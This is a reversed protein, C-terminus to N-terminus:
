PARQKDKCGAMRYAPSNRVYCQFSDAVGGQSSSGPIGGSARIGDLVAAVTQPTLEKGPEACYYGFIFRDGLQSRTDSSYGFYQSFTVCDIDDFGFQRYTVKGVSNRARQETEFTPSKDAFFKMTGIEDKLDLERRWGYGSTLVAYIMEARPYDGNPGVWFGIYQWITRNPAQSGFYREIGGGLGPALLAIPSSEASLTNWKTGLDKESEARAPLSLGAVLSLTLVVLAGAIRGERRAGTSRFEM